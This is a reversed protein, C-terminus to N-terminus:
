RKPTTERLFSFYVGEVGDFELAGGCQSCKRESNILKEIANDGGNVELLQETETDCNDCYYPAYFSSVQGPGAFNSLMGFQRTIPISCREFVLQVSEPLESILSIWERIGCSSISKVGELNIVANETVAKRLQQADFDENIDGRIWIYRRDGNDQYNLDYSM